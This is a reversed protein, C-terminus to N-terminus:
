EEATPHFFEGDFSDTHWEWQHTQSNFLAIEQSPKIQLGDCKFEMSGIVTSDIRVSVNTEGAQKSVHMFNRFQSASTSLEQYNLCVVTRNILKATLWHGTIGNWAGITTKYKATFQLHSWRDNFFTKSWETSQITLLLNNGKEAFAGVLWDYEEAYPLSIPINRHLINLMASVLYSLFHNDLLLKIHSVQNTCRSLNLTSSHFVIGM